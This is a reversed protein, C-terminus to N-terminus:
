IVEQERWFAGVHTAPHLVCTDCKIKWFPDDNIIIFFSHMQTKEIKWSLSISQKCVRPTKYYINHGAICGRKFTARTSPLSVQSKPQTKHDKDILHAPNDMVSLFIMTILHTSTAWSFQMILLRNKHYSNFLSPLLNQKLAVRTQAPQTPIRFIGQNKKVLSM